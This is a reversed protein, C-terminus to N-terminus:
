SRWGTASRWGCCRMRVTAPDGAIARAGPTDPSPPAWGQGLEALADEPSPIGVMGLTDRARERAERRSVKEHAQVTEVMQTEISLVPNLTM